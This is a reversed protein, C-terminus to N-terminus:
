FFELKNPSDRSLIGEEYSLMDVDIQHELVHVHVQVGQDPLAVDQLLLMTPVDYVLNAFCEVIKMVRINDM